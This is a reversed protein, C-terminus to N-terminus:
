CGMSGMSYLRYRARRRTSSEDLECRPYLAKLVFNFTCLLSLPTGGYKDVVDIVADTFTEWGKNAHSGAQGSRVTLSRITTAIINDASNM